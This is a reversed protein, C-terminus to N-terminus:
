FRVSAKVWGRWMSTSKWSIDPDGDAIETDIDLTPYHNSIGATGGLRVDFSEFRYGLGASGMAGWTVKNDNKKLDQATIAGGVDLETKWRAKSSNWRLDAGIGAFGYLRGAIPV